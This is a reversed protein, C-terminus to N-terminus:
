KGAILLPEIGGDGTVPAPMFSVAGEAIKQAGSVHGIRGGVKVEFKVGADKV